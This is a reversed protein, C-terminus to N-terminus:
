TSSAEKEGSESRGGGKCTEVDMEHEAGDVGEMHEESREEETEVEKQKETPESEKGKQGTEPGEACDVQLHGRCLCGECKSGRRALLISMSGGDERSVVDNVREVEKEGMWLQALVECGWLM